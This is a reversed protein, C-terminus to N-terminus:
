LFKSLAVFSVTAVMLGAALQVAPLLLAAGPQGTGLVSVLRRAGTGGCAILLNFAATGLGMTFTAAIGAPLIQLRWAIVLLFLAGTCPRIAISAVLAAMERWTRLGDVEQPSPAHRHGCACHHGGHEECAAGAAHEHPALARWTARMGRLALLCGILGIAAFSAPALFQETTDILSTSTLSFLRIGGLVLLIAVLSQGLSSALTLLSMRWLSVGSSVAAAGLLVKGHGPGIAHVFGYGFTLGCLTVIAAPEGARIARLSTAMANQFDRQVGAAWYILSSMDLAGLLAVVLLAACLAISATWILRM